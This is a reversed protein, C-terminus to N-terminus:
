QACDLDIGFLERAAMAPDRLLTQSMHLLMLVHESIKPSYYSYEFGTQLMRAAAYDVARRLFDRQTSGTLNRTLSYTEWFARMAPQLQLLTPNSRQLL